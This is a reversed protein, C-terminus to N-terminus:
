QNETRATLSYPSYKSGDGSVGVNVKSLDIEVVPRLYYNVTIDDSAALKNPIVSGKNISFMEYNFWGDDYWVCRTALWYGNLNDTTGPKYRLLQLYISNMYTATIEYTYYTAKGKLINKRNSSGTIYEDQDSLNYRTGFIGEPAGTIELAFINPYRSNGGTDTLEKGYNEYTTKDFTSVKEIDEINMSRGVAGLLKNSYLEKCANNLLLVGNNYGNIGSLKFGSHIPIETTIMLKTDTSYLIRWEATTDTTLQSNSTGAYTTPVHDEYIGVIPTYDIYKGALTTDIEEEVEPLKGRSEISYPVYKSGDGTIGVNVKSVDIEVVPRFGYSNAGSNANITGNNIYYVRFNFTKGDYFTCRSALWYTRLNTVTEPKYRFLQLYISEMNSTAMEYSYYTAKGKVSTKTTSGTIYEDQENQNYRTGYIGEPAGNKELAFINPYALSSSVTFEAGYNEYTDKDFTSVREIDEIDISRGVAGLLKNSYLEKGATNLLLVMNNYGTAGWMSVNHVPEESVLTLTDSDAFLIRWEINTDTTLRSNNSTTGIYTSIHDNFVGAIPKYDVYKGILSDKVEDTLNGFDISDPDRPLETEEDGGGPKDPDEDGGPTPDPEEGGGPEEGGSGGTQGIMNESEKMNGAKDFARVNVTYATDGSLGSATYTVTPNDGEAKIEEKKEGNIYIEYYDIGSVDNTYTTDDTTGASITFGEETENTISITFDRPAVSDKQVTISVIDSLNGAKDIAQFNITRIGESKVTLTKTFGSVYTKNEEPVEAEDVVEWYYYGAIGSNSDNM